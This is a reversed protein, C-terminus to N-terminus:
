TKDHSKELSSKSPSSRAISGGTPPAAVTRSPPPTVTPFAQVITATQQQQQQQQQSLMHLMMQHQEQPTLTLQQRHLHNTTTRSTVTSPTSFVPTVVPSPRIQPQTNSSNVSTSHTLMPSNQSSALTSSENSHLTSSSSSGATPTTTTEPQIFNNLRLSRNDTQQHTAAATSVASPGGLPLTLRANIALLHDRRAVLSTIHEELRHNEAQLQHLCNLLSAIDFHQGQAHDMLFQSGQEWQRELLQEMTQPLSDPTRAPPKYATRTPLQPGKLPGNQLDAGTLHGDSSFTLATEGSGRAHGPLSSLPTSQQSIQSNPSLSSSAGEHKVVVNNTKAVDHQKNNHNPSIQPSGAGAGGVGTGVGSALIDKVTKARGNSTPPVVSSAAATAAPTVIGNTLLAASSAGTAAAVSIESKKSRKRNGKDSSKGRQRKNSAAAAAASPETTVTTVDITLGSSKSQNTDMGAPTVVLRNNSGAFVLASTRAVVSSTSAAVTSGEKNSSSSAVSETTTTPEIKVDNGSLSVLSSSPTTKLNSSTSSSEAAVETSASTSASSASDSRNLTKGSTAGSTRNTPKRTPAPSSDAADANNRNTKRVPASSSDAATALSSDAAATKVITTEVFNATTFKSAYNGGSPSATQQHTASSSSSTVAATTVSVPPITVTLNLGAENFQKSNRIDRIHVRPNSSLKVQGNNKEPTGDPTTGASSPVPKFAPITKIHSDKKLKKYHYACYGCYKVNDNYSGAEECLLGKAQACTVHFHQKCGNRNCQMCAGSCAKGERGQEECIYCAKNFRDPPIQHLIVPEMTQVNGFWAEPIFLACVVHCWGGGNDTRKLAGDKSPCLECKVRAAREQSECKRCFWPGTPVQVIGYCAQHVAVNCGQGDCYVLPNETWGREDSCVCCGGVMEKM